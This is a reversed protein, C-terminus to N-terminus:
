TSIGVKGFHGGAGYAAFAEAAEAYGYVEAIIPAFPRDRLEAVLAEFTARSGVFVGQVRIQRMLIPLVSVPETAGGLNGIVAVTGGVRVADISQALTGTGVVDVVLDVGGDSWARVAKGWGPHSRYSWVQAVGLARLREAKEETSTLAAVRAGRALALQAAFLSVAGTGLVLVTAGPGVAGVEAVAHYATVGACPLCAAEVDTLGDPAAVLDAEPLVLAEALVGAIPGGRTKRVADPRPPGSVWTPSFTPCVRDGVAVRTVGPGVAAVVGVGDSLPVYPLALRPDYQGNLLLWDRYNLSWARMTLQVEGPGPAPPDFPTRRLHALGFAGVEFRTM